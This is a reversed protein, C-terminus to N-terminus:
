PRRAIYINWDGAENARAFSLVCDDASVWSPLDRLSSALEAVIEPDGFPEDRTAREARFISQYVAPARESSIYVVLAAANVIAEYDPEPSNLETAAEPTGYSGDDGRTAVFIDFDGTRDSHIYMLEGDASLSSMFNYGSSNVNAVITVQDFETATNPRTAVLVYWEPERNFFLSLGDASLVPNTEWATTGVPAPLAFPTGFPEDPSGRTARYLNREGARQSDFYITTLDDSLWTRGEAFETNLEDIPEAPGFPAGQDCRPTPGAAGMGGDGNTGGGGTSGGSGTTTSARGDEGGGDSATGGSTTGGSTPEGAGGGQGSGDGDSGTGTASGSSASAGDGGSGASTPGSGSTFEDSSCSGVVLAAIVAGLWRPV